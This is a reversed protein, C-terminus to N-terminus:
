LLIDFSDSLFIINNKDIYNDPPLLANNSQILQIIYDIVQNETLERYSVSKLELNESSDGKKKLIKKLTYTGNNRRLDQLIRSYYIKKGNPTDISFSPILISNFEPNNFISRIKFKFEILKKMMSKWDVTEWESNENM